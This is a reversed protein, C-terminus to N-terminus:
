LEKRYSTSACLASGLKLQLNRLDPTLHAEDEPIVDQFRLGFTPLLICSPSPLNSLVLLHLPSIVNLSALIGRLREGLRLGHIFSISSAFIAQSCLFCPSHLPSHLTLLSTYRPHFRITCLAHKRICQAPSTSSWTVLKARM